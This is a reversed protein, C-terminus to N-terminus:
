LSGHGAISHGATLLLQSSGGKEQTLQSAVGLQSGLHRQQEYVIWRGFEVFGVELTQECFDAIDRSLEDHGREVGAILGQRAQWCAVPEVHFM